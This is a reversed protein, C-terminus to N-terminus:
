GAMQQLYCNGNRRSLPEKETEVGPEVPRLNRLSLFGQNWWHLHIVDAQQVLPHRSIDTGFNALSFSFRVSKDHEWPLFSLREAIFNFRGSVDKQTLLGANVGSKQLATQLRRCATGAGGHPYTTVLLVNPQGSEASNSM